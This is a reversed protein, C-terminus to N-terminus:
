STANQDELKKIAEGFAEDATRVTIAPRKDSEPAITTGTLPVYAWSSVIAKAASSIKEVQAPSKLTPKTYAEEGVQAKIVVEAGDKYVRDAKKAVLKWGPICEGRNMSAEIEDKLAKIYFQVGEIQRGQQGLRDAGMNIIEKPDAKAAAGFLGTLLPCILKAPCFRCWPGADLQNDMELNRMAPLLETDAWLCLSEASEEWERIIGDPHFGRPQIIRYRVTRVGPFTELLGRGYYRVQPNREVDVAIGVGHKYDTIDLVQEESFYCALDATGFYLPHLDPCHMKHEVRVVDAAAVLPRVKDLYVQVAEAMNETVRGTGIQEWADVNERLCLAALEHADTGEQRYDPEDSHGLDLRKLLEVSGPCNMWREASSAGLSSHAPLSDTM